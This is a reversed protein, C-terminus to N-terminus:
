HMGSFIAKAQNLADIEQARKSQRGDFNKLLFDCQGHLNKAVEDLSLIDEVTTRHDGNALALEEDEKAKANSKDAISVQNASILKNSDKTFGEYGAQADTEAAIARTELDKSEKMVEMIMAVAGGGNAKAYTKQAPPPALAEGPGDEQMLAKKDYFASLRAVAKELIAQTARQDSITMEFEANEAARNKNAKMMEVQTYTVEENLAKLDATLGAITSELSAIKADLDAKQDNKAAAQRDNTNLEKICFDRDTVEDKSEQKLSVVMDDINQKVKTFADLKMNYALTALQPSKLSKNAKVLADIANNRSSSVASKQIFSMSKTFADNAEDNTLIATTDSVAQIEESRVKVRAAYDADATACRSKLDALFGTDAELADETNRKDQAAVANAQDTDGLQQQKEQIQANAAAIQKTKAEKLSAYETEANAEDKQSGALNTQFTEKMQKLVGYIEGSAPTRQKTSAGQQVFNMALRYHHKDAHSRIVQLLSDIQAESHTKGLTIVANKLSTISTIMDKEEAVFEAREKDRIATAQNLANTEASVSAKLTDLDQNLQASKATLEEITSALETSQQNGDAIAKAKQSGGSECWCAMTEYTEADEAAEKALQASMDQLLKVVKAIPREGFNLDQSDAALTSSRHVQIAASQLLMALLCASRM